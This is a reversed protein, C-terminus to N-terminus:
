LKLCLQHSQGLVLQVSQIELKSLIEARKLLYRERYYQPLDIYQVTGQRELIPFLKGKHSTEPIDDIIRQIQNQLDTNKLSHNRLIFAAQKDNKSTGFGITYCLALQMAAKSVLIHGIISKTFM